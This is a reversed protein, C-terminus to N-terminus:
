LKQRFESYPISTTSSFVPGLVFDQFLWLLVLTVLFYGLNFTVQRPRWDRRNEQPGNGAMAAHVERVVRHAHLTLEACAVGPTLRPRRTPATMVGFLSICWGRCQWKLALRGPGCISM